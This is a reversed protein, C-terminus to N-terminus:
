VFLGRFIANKIAFNVLQGMSGKYRQTELEENTFAKVVAAGSLSEQLINGTDALM